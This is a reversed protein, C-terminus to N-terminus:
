CNLEVSAEREEFDDRIFVCSGCTVRRSSDMLSDPPDEIGRSM